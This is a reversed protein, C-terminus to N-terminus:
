LNNIGNPTPISDKAFFRMFVSLTLLLCGFVIYYIPYFSFPALLLIVIGYFLPKKSNSKVFFGKLKEKRNKISVNKSVTIQPLLNEKKLSSYVDNLSFLKIRIAFSSLLNKGEETYDNALVVTKYGKKTNKYFNIIDKATTKEFTFSIFVQSKIDKLIIADNIIEANLGQKKYFKYFLELLADEGMFCLETLLSNIRNIEEEKYFASQKKLIIFILYSLSLVLAILVSFILSPTFNVRNYRIIAFSFFFASIFIFFCDFFISAKFNKM